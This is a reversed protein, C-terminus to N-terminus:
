KNLLWTKWKLIQKMFWCRCVQVRYQRKVTKVRRMRDWIQQESEPRTNISFLILVSLPPLLSWDLLHPRRSSSHAEFFSASKYGSQALACSAWCATRALGQVACLHCCLYRVNHHRELPVTWSFEHINERYQACPHILSLQICCQFGLEM